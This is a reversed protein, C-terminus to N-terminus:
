NNRSNGGTNRNRVIPTVRAQNKGFTKDNEIELYPIMLAHTIISENKNYLAIAVSKMVNRINAGTYAYNDVLNKLLADNEFQINKPLYQKWLAERQVEKPRIVQVAIDM